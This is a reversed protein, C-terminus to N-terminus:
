GEEPRAPRLQVHIAKQNLALAKADAQCVRIQVNVTCGGANTGDMLAGCTDCAGESRIKKKGM